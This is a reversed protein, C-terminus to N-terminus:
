DVQRLGAPQTTINMKRLLKRMALYVLNANPHFSFLHLQRSLDRDNKVAKKLNNMHDKIYEKIENRYIGLTDKEKNFVLLYYHFLNTKLLLKYSENTLWAYKKEIFAHREKLGDIIDLNRASYTTVISDDRQRYYYLPEHLLVYARVRDMVLHAWYVDEFLVGETFPLDRIIATKYLKGWAFNKIKENVVLEKMGTQQDFVVPRATQKYNREDVLLHDPYTYYFAAQAVDAQYTHIANILKEVMKEDLWDDSDVFMTFAGTVHQMGTNRAASLGGNKQHIVTIRDDQQKYNEAIEGCLDPSGDNVIIVELHKYTQNMISDLCRHIYEEVRYVPVIISVKEKDM